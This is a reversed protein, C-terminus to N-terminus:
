FKAITHIETRSGQEIVDDYDLFMNIKKDSVQRFVEDKGQLSLGSYINQCSGFGSGFSSYLNNFRFPFLFSVQVSVSVSISLFIATFDSYLIKKLISHTLITVVGIKQTALRWINLVM